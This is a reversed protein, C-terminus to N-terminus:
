KSIRNKVRQPIPSAISGSFLMAKQAVYGIRRRLEQQKYERVDVGNVLVTGDTADYFRPIMQVLSSKGVGTAGIVALTEGRRIKLNIDSLM